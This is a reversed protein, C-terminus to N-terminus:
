IASLGTYFLTPIIQKLFKSSIFGNLKLIMTVIFYRIVLEAKTADSKASGDKSTGKCYSLWEKLRAKTIHQPCAGSLLQVKDEACFFVAEPLSNGNINNTSAM